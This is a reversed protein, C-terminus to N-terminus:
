LRRIGLTYVADAADRTFHTLRYKEGEFTVKISAVNPTLSLADWASVRSLLKIDGVKIREGDFQKNSFSMRICPIDYDTGGDAYTGTVPNYTDLSSSNFTYNQVFGSFSQTFFNKALKQFSSKDPM